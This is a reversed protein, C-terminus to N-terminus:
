GTGGTGERELLCGIIDGESEVRAATGGTTVADGHARFTLSTRNPELVDDVDSFEGPPLPLYGPLSQSAAASATTGDGGSSDQLPDSSKEAVIVTGLYHCVEAEAAPLAELGAANPSTSFDLLRNPLRKSWPFIDL